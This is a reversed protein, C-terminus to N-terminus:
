KSNKNKFNKNNNKYNFKNGCLFNLFIDFLLSLIGEVIDKRGPRGKMDQRRNMQTKFFHDECEWTGEHRM